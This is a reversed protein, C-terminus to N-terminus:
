YPRQGIFNGPPSYDCVAFTWNGGGFPSGTTCAQIACGISTTSRWVLQTYHGCTGADCSNGAYDYNAAESDWLAVVDAPAFTGGSAAINEGYGAGTNHAFVCGAAWSTATSAVTTDWGYPALPPVPTPQANARVADHACLWADITADGSDPNCGADAISGGDATPGADHGSSAGADPGADGVASPSSSCATLAAWGFAFLRKM